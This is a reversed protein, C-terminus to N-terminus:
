ESYEYKFYIEIEEVDCADLYNINWKSKLIKWEKPTLGMCSVLGTIDSKNWKGHYFGVLQQEAGHLRFDETNPIEAILDLLEYIKDGVGCGMISELNEIGHLNRIVKTLEKIKSLEEM